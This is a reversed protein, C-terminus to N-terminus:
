SPILMEALLRTTRETAGRNEDCVAAAREGLRRNLEANVFLEHLYDALLTATKEGSDVPLQRIADAALFAQVISAFNATHAGTIIARGLAAPDLINHGGHPVLSGGVFVVSALSYTVHLEGITDLLLVDTDTDTAAPVSSRRTWKLTSGQLLRAVGEFREPHRPAILLRPRIRADRNNVEALARLLVTEEGDHTSAAVLLPRASQSFRFRADLQQTMASHPPTADFKVNGTVHVRERAFGLEIIRAEDGTSQMLALSLDNVVRRMFFRVRWYNRM